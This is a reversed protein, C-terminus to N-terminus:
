KEIDQSIGYGSVDTSKISAILSHTESVFDSCSYLYEALKAQRQSLRTPSNEIENLLHTQSSSIRNVGLSLLYHGLMTSGLMLVLAHIFFNSPLWQANGWYTIAIFLAKFFILSPALNALIIYFSIWFTNTESVAQKLTAINLSNFNLSENESENKDPILVELKMDELIRREDNKAKLIEPHTSFEQQIIDNLKYQSSVKNLAVKLYVGPLLFLCNMSLVQKWVESSIVSKFIRIIEPKSLVEAAVNERVEKQKLVEATLKTNLSMMEDIKEQNDFSQHLARLKAEYRVVKTIESTKSEFLTTKFKEFDYKNPSTGELFFRSDNAVKFGLIKLRADFDSKLRSIEKKKVRDVKNMVFFWRKRSAWEIICQNVVFDSRKDPITVYVLIDSVSIIKQTLEANLTSITDLDPTDILVVNPSIAKCFNVNGMSEIPLFSKNEASTSIFLEKTYGRISDSSPSANKVGSLTSFILSKGVGTGGILTVILPKKDNVKTIFDIAEKLQNATEQIPQCNPFSLSLELIKDASKKLKEINNRM